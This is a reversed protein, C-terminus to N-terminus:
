EPSNESRGHSDESVECLDLFGEDVGSEALLGMFVDEDDKCM